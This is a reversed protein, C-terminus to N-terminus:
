LKVVIEKPATVRSSIKKTYSAREVVDASVAGSLVYKQLAKTDVEKVVGNLSLVEAPLLAPNYMVKEGEKTRKFEGVKFAQSPDGSNRVVYKVEGLLRNYEESISLFESVFKENKAMYDLMQRKIENFEKVAKDIRSKSM